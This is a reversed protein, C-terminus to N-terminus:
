AQDAQLRAIRTDLSLKPCTSCKEGDDRRFHHCCVQRDLALSPTGDRARYALFDCGGTVQLLGLWSRGHMLIDPTTMEPQQRSVLLLAGLVCEAQLKDAASLHLGVKPMLATRMTRCFSLLESAADHQRQQFDGALPKHMPLAYGKPFGEVVPQTLGSLRPVAPALHAAIVCLYIPQWIALGWCRLAAYHPGAEPYARQWHSSLASSLRLAEDNDSICPEGHQEGHLGPVVGEVLKLLHALGADHNTLVDAHSTMVFDPAFRESRIVRVGRM